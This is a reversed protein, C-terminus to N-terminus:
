AAQQKRRFVLLNNRMRYDEPGIRHLVVAQLLSLLIGLFAIIGLSLPPIERPIRDALFVGPPGGAQEQFLIGPGMGPLAERFRDFWARDYRFIERPAERVRGERWVYDTLTVAEGLAPFRWLGGYPLSDQYARHMLMERPGPLRSSEDRDRLTEWSWPEESSVAAPLSVPLAAEETRLLFFILGLWLGGACLAALGLLLPRNARLATRRPPRASEAASPSLPVRVFLEHDRGKPSAGAGKRRRLRPSPAAWAAAFLGLYVGGDGITFLGASFAAGWVAAGAAFLLFGGRSRPRFRSLLFLCALGPFLAEPKDLVVLAGTYLAALLSPIWSEGALLLWFLALLCAAGLLLRDRRADPLVWGQRSSLGLDRAYQVPSRDAPLYFIAYSGQRFYGAAGRIYPDLRPDRPLLGAGAEQEAFSLSHSGDFSNYSFRRNGQHVAQGATLADLESVVSPVAARAPILLPYWGEWFRGRYERQSFSGVLLPLGAALFLLSLVARNKFFLPSLKAGIM